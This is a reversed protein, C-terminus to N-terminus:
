GAAARRGRAPCLGRPRLSEGGPTRARTPLGAPGAGSGVSRRGAWRWSWVRGDGGRRLPPLLPLKPIARLASLHEVPQHTPGDEGLGISDHTMVFVARRRMLAALRISPRCYDSFTLFTAGYSIIRGDVCREDPPQQARARTLSTARTRRRGVVVEDPRNKTNNSADPRSGGSWERVACCCRWCMGLRRTAVPSEAVLRAKFRPPPPAVRAGPRFGASRRVCFIRLYRRIRHTPAPWRQELGHTLRGAPPPLRRLRRPDGGAVFRVRTRGPSSAVPGRDGRAGPPPPSAGPQPFIAPTGAKNARLGITTRCAILTPRGNRTGAIARWVAEPDATSRRTTWGYLEFGNANDDRQFHAQNRTSRSQRQGDDLVVMGRWVWLGRPLCARPSLVEGDPRGDPRSSTTLQDVLDDRSRANFAHRECLAHWRTAWAQRAPRDDDRDSRASEGPHGPDAFRAQRFNKCSIRTM